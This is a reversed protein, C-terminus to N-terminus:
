AAAFNDCVFNENVRQGDEAADGGGAMCHAAGADNYKVQQCAACRQGDVEHMRFNPRLDNSM